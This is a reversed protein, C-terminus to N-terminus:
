SSPLSYDVRKRKKRKSGIISGNVRSLKKVQLINRKMGSKELKLNVEVYLFYLLISLELDLRTESLIEGSFPSKEM